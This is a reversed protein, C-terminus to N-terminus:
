QVDRRAGGRVVVTEVANWEAGGWVIIPTPTRKACIRYTTKTFALAHDSKPRAGASRSRTRRPHRRPRSQGLGIQKADARRQVQSVAGHRPSAACLPITGVPIKTKEM